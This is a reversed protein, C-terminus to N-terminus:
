QDDISGCRSVPAAAFSVAILSATCLCWPSHNAGNAGPKSALIIPPVRTTSRRSPSVNRRCYSLATLDEGSASPRILQFSNLSFECTSGLTLLPSLYRVTSCRRIEAGTGSSPGRASSELEASDTAPVDPGNTMAPPSIASTTSSSRRRRPFVAITVNLPM